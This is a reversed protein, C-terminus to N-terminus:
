HINQLYIKSEDQSSNEDNNIVMVDLLFNERDVFYAKKIEVQLASRNELYVVNHTDIEFFVDHHIKVCYEAADIVCDFFVPKAKANREVDYVLFKKIDSKKFRKKANM